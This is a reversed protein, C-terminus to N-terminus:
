GLRLSLSAALRGLFVCAHVSRAEVLSRMWSRGELLFRRNRSEVVLNGGRVSPEYLKMDLTSFIDATKYTQSLPIYMLIVMVIRSMIWRGEM